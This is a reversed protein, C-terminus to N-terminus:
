SDSPPPASRSSALQAFQFTTMTVVIGLVYREGGLIDPYVAARAAFPM